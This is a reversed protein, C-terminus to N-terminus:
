RAAEARARKAPSPSTLDRHPAPINAWVMYATGTADRREHEKVFEGHFM